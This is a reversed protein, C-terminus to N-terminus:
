LVENETLKLFAEELNKSKTTKKIMNLDGFVKVKGNHMIVIHDALAEAEELYHTTLIITMKDKLDIILKWLDRRARVDLGLTPEDLFLIKPNSILAMAISLRRQLGGSLVKAKDKGREELGFKKLMEVAKKSAEKKSFGYLRAILELNEKVTLLPAIATEQPSVNLIEKIDLLNNALDKNEIIIKGNTPLILGSLMKIATTKGAGNQGLLAFVEKEKITINLNDVAIRDKFKKTLNITKIADM